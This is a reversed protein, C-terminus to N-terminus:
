RMENTGEQILDLYPTFRDKFAMRARHLRSKVNALSAGTVQAIEEYSLQEFDRLVILLRQESSMTDLIRRVHEQLEHTEVISEVDVSDSLEVSPNQEVMGDISEEHAYPNRRIRNLCVNKAISYLWTSFKSEGRFNHLARLANCFIDQTLDYADEGGVMRSVMNFMPTQYKKFLTEFAHADGNLYERVLLLDADPQAASVLQAGTARSASIEADNM